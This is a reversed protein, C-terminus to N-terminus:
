LKIKNLANNKFLNAEKIYRRVMTASRHGTMMMISREDAGSNATATAFGSRLSHGSYNIPNLNAFNMHNKLILAVSQDTLRNQLVKGSKSIKRFISKNKIYSNNLWDKLAFVPCFIKSSFYPIAKVFGEGYQDTKSRKIIIKVGENAFEIDQYDLNVLESRRFGGAFGILILAKDRYYKNKSINNNDGLFIIIKKLDELVLPKKGIQLAGIKRKISKLNENIIPNKTDIHHGKLRNAIVLSVLRRKITSFKLKEKSLSTLYLSIDKVNPNIPNKNLKKCFIAFDRFDSKYARTTNYAKSNKINEITELELNKINNIINSM